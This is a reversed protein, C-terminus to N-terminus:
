EWEGGVMLRDTGLSRSHTSLVSVQLLGRRGISGPGSLRQRIVATRVQAHEVWPHLNQDTTGVVKLVLKVAAPRELVKEQGLNRCVRAPRPMYNAPMQAHGLQLVGM